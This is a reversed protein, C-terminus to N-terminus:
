KADSFRITVTTGQGPESEVVLSAGHASAIEKVLALGLGSGGQKRSRARDIRYFSETVRSIEDKPMGCGHDRVSIVNPRANLEVTSGASSAKRANDILNALASRLLDFDILFVEDACITKLQIGAADLADETTERVADFLDHVPCPTKEVANQLLVLQMLKQSLREIWRAQEHIRLLARERDQESVSRTLLTDSNILLSTVPTKLEHSLDNIFAQKRANQEQLDAVSQQVADAMANFDKALAGIEDTRRIPIRTDYAGNAIANAGSQLTEVPKLSLATLLYIFLLFALLVGGGILACQRTLAQMSTHLASMDRVTCVTYTGHTHNVRTGTLQVPRDSVAVFRTRIEGLALEPLYSEPSFGCNNVLYTGDACLTWEDATEIGRLLYILYTQETQPSPLERISRIRRTSTDFETSAQTVADNERQEYVTHLLLVCCLTLAAAMLICAIAILKTKLRM